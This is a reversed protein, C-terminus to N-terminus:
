QGNKREVWVCLASWLVNLSLRLGNKSLNNQLKGDFHTNWKQFQPFFHTLKNAYKSYNQQCDFLLCFTVTAVHCFYRTKFIYKTVYIKCSIWSLGYCYVLVWRFVEYLSCIVFAILRVLLFTLTWHRCLIFGEANNDSNIPVLM